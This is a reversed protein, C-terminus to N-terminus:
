LPRNQLLAFRCVLTPVHSKQITFRSLMALSTGVFWRVNLLSSINRMMYLLDTTYTLHPTATNGHDGNPTDKALIRGDPLSDVLQADEQSNGGVRIKVHGARLIM